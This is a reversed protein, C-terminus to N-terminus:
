DDDDYKINHLKLLAKARRLQTEYVNGEQRLQAKERELRIIDLNMGRLMQAASIEIKLDLENAEAQTKHTDAADKRRGRILDILKTATAGFAALLAYVIWQRWTLNLPESM